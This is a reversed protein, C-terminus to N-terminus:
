AMAPESTALAEDQPQLDLRRGESLNKAVWVLLEVGIGFLAERWLDSADWDKDVGVQKWAVIPGTDYGDDMQYVTGGAYEDGSEITWKVSDKGRHRPLLSPHYALVGLPVANRVESPVYQFWHACIVVDAKAAKLAALQRGYSYVVPRSECDHAAQTMKEDKPEIVVAVIKVDPLGDIRKVVKAGLTRSGFVAVRLRREIAGNNDFKITGETM